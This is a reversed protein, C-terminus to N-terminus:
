VSDPAIGAPMAPMDHYGVIKLGSQSVKFVVSMYEIESIYEGIQESLSCMEEWLPVQGAIQDESEGYQFIGTEKDIIVQKPKEKFRENIDLGFRYPRESRAYSCLIRTKGSEDNSLIFVFEMESGAFLEKIDRRNEIRERLVYYRRLGTILEKLQEEAIDENNVKLKGNDYKIDYSAKIYNNESPLLLAEGKEKVLNLLEDIDDLPRDEDLPIYVQGGNRRIINCYLDPLYQKYGKLIYCPTLRDSLWKKYANNIPAILTYQFDSFFERYNDEAM